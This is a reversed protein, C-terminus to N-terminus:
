KQELKEKLLMIQDQLELRKGARVLLDELARINREQFAIDAAKILDDIKLYLQFREGISCKPVYKAAEKRNGHQICVEAFPEYGIPSKKQRSFRELEEFDGIACLGRVKAWWFQNDSMRYDKRLQEAVKAHRNKTCQLITDFLSLGIVRLKLKNELEEQEKRLKLLEEAVRIEFAHQGERFEHIASM